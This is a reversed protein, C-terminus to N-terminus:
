VSKHECDDICSLANYSLEGDTICKSLQLFYAFLILVIDFVNDYGAYLLHLLHLLQM